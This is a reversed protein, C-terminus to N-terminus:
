VEEEWVPCRTLGGSRNVESRKKLCALEWKDMDLRSPVSIKHRCESCCHYESIKHLHEDIM